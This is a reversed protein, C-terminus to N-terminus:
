QQSARSCQAYPQEVFQQLYM